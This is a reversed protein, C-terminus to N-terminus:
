KVRTLGPGLLAELRQHLDDYMAIVQEYEAVLEESADHRQAVEFTHRVQRLAAITLKLEQETLALQYTKAV